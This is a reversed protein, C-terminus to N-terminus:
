KRAIVKALEQDDPFLEMILRGVESRQQTFVLPYQAGKSDTTLMLSCEFCILLETEVADKEGITVKVGPIPDCASLELKDSDLIEIVLKDFERSWAPTASIPGALVRVGSADSVHGSIRSVRHPEDSVLAARLESREDKACGVTLVFAAVAWAYRMAVM